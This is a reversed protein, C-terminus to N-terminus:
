DGAKAKALLRDRNKHIEDGMAKILAAEELANKIAEMEDEPRDYLAFTISINKWHMTRWDGLRRNEMAFIGVTEMFLRGFQLLGKLVFRKNGVDQDDYPCIWKDAGNALEECELVNVVLLMFSRNTGFSRGFEAFDLRYSCNTLEDM